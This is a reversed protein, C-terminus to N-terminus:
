VGTQFIVFVADTTEGTASVSSGHLPFKAPVATLALFCDDLFRRFGRLSVRLRHAACRTRSM